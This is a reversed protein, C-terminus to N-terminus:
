VGVVLLTIAVILIKKIPQWLYDLHLLYWAMYSVTERGEAHRVDCVASWVLSLNSIVWFRFAVADCSRVEDVYM